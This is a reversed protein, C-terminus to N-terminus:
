FNKSAVFQNLRKAQKQDPTGLCIWNQDRSILNWTEQFQLLELLNQSMLNNKEMHLFLKWPKQSKRPIQNTLLKRFTLIFVVKSGFHHYNQHHYHYRDQHYHYYHYCHYYHIIVIIFFSLFSSLLLLSTLSSSSKKSSIWM